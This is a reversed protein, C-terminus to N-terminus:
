CGDVSSILLLFMFFSHFDMFFGHFDMIAGGSDFGAHFDPVGSTEFSIKLQLLHFRLGVSALHFVCQATDITSFDGLNAFGYRDDQFILLITPKRSYM